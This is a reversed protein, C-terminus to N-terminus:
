SPQGAHVADQSLCAQALAQRLWSCGPDRHTRAHWILRYDFELEPMRLPMSRLTGAAVWQRAARAPLVALLGADAMAQVGQSFYPAQLRIVPSPLGLRSYLDDTEHGTASPYRVAFHAHASAARLGDRTVWPSALGEFFPHGAPGLLVYHERFLVRGHFDDPIAEDAYLAFDLQGQELQTLTQASWPDFRLSLGPATRTLVPLLPAGVTAVGYDTSALRFVRRADAPVFPAAALASGLLTLADDLPAELAQARATLVYGHRSRVLLPDGLRSRLRAMTRSALPQSMGCAAGAQTISACRVLALLFRLQRLDLTELGAAAHLGTIHSMRNMNKQIVPRRPVM